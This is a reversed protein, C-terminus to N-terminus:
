SDGGQCAAYLPGETDSNVYLLCDESDVFGMSQWVPNGDDGEAECICIDQYREPQTCTENDDFCSNQSIYSVGESDTAAMWADVSSGMPMEGNIVLPHEEDLFVTGICPCNEIWNSSGASSGGITGAEIEGCASNGIEFMSARCDDESQYGLDQWKPMEDFTQDFQSSPVLINGYCPCEEQESIGGPAEEEFQGLSDTEASKTYNLIVNFTLDRASTFDYKTDMIFVQNPNEVHSM